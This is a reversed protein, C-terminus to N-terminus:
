ALGGYGRRACAGPAPTPDPRRVAAPATPMAPSVPVPAPSPARPRPRARQVGRRRRPRRPQAAPTAAAPGPTVPPVAGPLTAGGGANCRAAGSTGAADHDEPRRAVKLVLEESDDGQTFRVRDAAVTAVLVGNVQEGQRM